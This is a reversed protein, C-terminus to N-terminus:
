LWRVLKQLVPSPCGHPSPKKSPALFLRCAHLAPDQTQVLWAAAVEMAIDPLMEPEIEPLPGYPLLAQLQALNLNDFYTALIERYPRLLLLAGGQMAWLGLALLLTERRSETQLLESALPSLVPPRGELALYKRLLKDLEARTLPYREYILRWKECGVYTWWVPNMVQGPCHWLRYFTQLSPSM